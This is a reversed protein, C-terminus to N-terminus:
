FARNVRSTKIQSVCTLLSFFLRKYITEPYSSVRTRFYIFHIFPNERMANILIGLEPQLSPGSTLLAAQEQLPSPSPEWCGRADVCQIELELLDVCGESMWPYWAHVHAVYMCM